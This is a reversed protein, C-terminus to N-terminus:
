YKKMWGRVNGYSSIGEILCDLGTVLDEANLIGGGKVIEGEIEGVKLLAKLFRDNSLYSDPM